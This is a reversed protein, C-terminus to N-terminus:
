SNRRLSIHTKFMNLILKRGNGLDALFIDKLIELEEAPDASNTGFTDNEPWVERSARLMAVALKTDGNKLHFQIKKIAELKQQDMDLELTADFPVVDCEVNSTLTLAVQDCALNWISEASAQDQAQSKSKKQSNKKKGYLLKIFVHITELLDVLYKKSYKERKYLNVLMLLMERYSEDDSRDMFALNHLLEKYARLALHSRYSWLPLKKKDTTMMDHWTELYKQIFQFTQVSLTESVYKVKFNYHRNFEMFFRIAMFYYSEDNEQARGRHFCERVHLMLPNYAANLFEVCVQKLILRVSLASKREASECKLPQRNKPLKVPKKETDLSIYKSDHVPKHYILDNNDSTSKMNKIVFTGGFNSHRTGFFRKNKKMKNQLELQRIKLLEEDDKNKEEVSRQSATKALVEAPQERLMLLYDWLVQDHISADNDPRQDSDSSSPVHLINRILILIREVTRQDDESRDEVKKGLLESLRETFPAWARHDNFSEKYQQLHSTIELYYNHEFKDTPIVENYVLLAPNTLNVILRLAIDFLQEDKHHCQVMPLLDTTLLKANGLYRRIEHSGGEDRRLYRILDRVTEKCHPELHYKQGDYFGLANCTAALEASLYGSVAM